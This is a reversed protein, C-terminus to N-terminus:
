LGITHMDVPIVQAKQGCCVCASCGAFSAIGILSIGNVEGSLRGGEVVCFRSFDDDIGCGTYKVYSEKAAWIDFFDAYGNAELHRYELAHFFRKAIGKANCPVHCQIDLGVPQSSIAIAWIDASHSVSFHIDPVNEFVPKGGNRVVAPTQTLAIKRRNAFDLACGVVPGDKDSFSREPGFYLYIPHDNTM